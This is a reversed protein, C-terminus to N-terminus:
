ALYQLGLQEQHTPPCWAHCGGGDTQIHTYIPPHHLVTFHKPDRSPVLFTGWTDQTVLIKKVTPCDTTLAGYIGGCVLTSMAAEWQLVFIVNASDRLFCFIAMLM